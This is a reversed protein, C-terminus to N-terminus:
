RAFYTKVTKELEPRNLVWISGAYDSMGVDGAATFSRFDDPSLMRAFNVLRILQALTLDTKIYQTAIDLALPAKLLNTPKAFSRFLTQMFKQQRGIRGIDGESDHRFRIYGQAEQGSLRHWGQKLNIHLNGARDNYYLNQEVFIDIGGILDVLKSAAYPNVEIYNDVTLGTLETITKEALEIGGYVHAANIKQMGKGPIMVFSDRPISLVNIQYRAPDIRALLISDTRGESETLLKGTVDSYNLDTGVILLTYPRRVVGVRLLKPIARPIFINLYFYVIACIITLIALIRYYDIKRRKM